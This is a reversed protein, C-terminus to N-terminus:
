PISARNLNKILIRFLFDLQSVSGTLNSEWVKRLSGCPHIPVMRAPRRKTFPSSTSARNLNKHTFRFLFGIPTSFRYPEVEVGEAIFSTLNHSTHDLRAGAFSLACDFKCGVLLKAM